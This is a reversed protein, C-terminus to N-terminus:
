VLIPLMTQMYLMENRKQVRYRCTFIHRAMMNGVCGLIITVVIVM